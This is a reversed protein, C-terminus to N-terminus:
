IWSRSLEARAPESATAAASDIPGHERSLVFSGEMSREGPQSPPIVWKGEITRRDERLRGFYQVRHGQRVQGVRKEGVQFALFSEGQYTKVFHVHQGNVSGELLSTTPLHTVTRIPLREAEPCLQRLREYVQEDAGPQWGFEMAAQALPQESDPEGDSMVGTVREDKQVIEASIPHERGYQRYHGVWQGTINM